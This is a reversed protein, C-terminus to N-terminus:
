DKFEFLVSFFTRSEQMVSKADDVVQVLNTLLGLVLCLIDFAHSGGTAEKAEEMKQRETDDDSEEAKRNVAEEEEDERAIRVVENGAKWVTRLILGMTMQCELVGAAWGKDDHTLSILTRLTLTFCNRYLDTYCLSYAVSPSSFRKRDAGAENQGDQKDVMSKVECCVGLAVLDRIMWEDRAKDLCMQVEDEEISTWQGLLYGDM